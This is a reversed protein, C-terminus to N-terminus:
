EDDDEEDEAKEIGLENDVDEEGEKGSNMAM